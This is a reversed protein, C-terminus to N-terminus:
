LVERVLVQRGDRPLVRVQFVRDEESPHWGHLSRADERALRQTFVELNAFTGDQAVGSLQVGDKLELLLHFLELGLTLVEEGGGAYCYILHLHTHLTELGEAAAPRTPRLDFRDWPKVVWFASDIPTRPTIRLPVGQSLQGPAFALSPLDELRAIGLCLDRLLAAAASPPMLPLGRFRDLHRGNALAVDGGAAGLPQTFWARRRAQALRDTGSDPIPERLLRRDLIPDAELAPDFRTMEALLKLEGQRRDSRADFARQWYRPPRLDPDAHLEACDHVGFLSYSLAARLERATIHIEGRQHCAQLLDALRERLRPGQDPDRLAQVSHWATCRAQVTCTACPAWPDTDGGLLRDVLADLFDATLRGQAEDTGGVLSRRNLDILRFRPDLTLTEGLLVQRLPGTLWTDEPQTEIWELLKGNNVAVIHILDRRFDPTHFPAFLEGLLTNAGKGEWAAAGDLNVKLAQGNPLKLKWVRRASHIDRLGLRQALHQLFATKGDGANGFLIILNVQGAQIEALLTDDLRTEVYTAEAFPSDLGRTESNGHRSGPYSSLLNRLWPVHNQTLTPPSVTVPPGQEAHTQGPTAAPEALFRRAALADPFRQGVNPHTARDFFPRLADFGTIGEWNLGLDKRRETGYSFPDRDTLCHFLSAALAYLDDAPRIGARAQVEPSAYPFTGGRAADGTQAVTDYDTLVVSGGRVILNKLSVDGHVLGVRHLEGLAGCLDLLWRQALAEVSPEGLDDAYLSLVGTLDQMPQGEVWKMLAVFRDREWTPAIEHITSLNPHTTYARVRKYARIAAEGDVPDRVLKAVYTGFKEDSHADLEVVKFTQGIGGSGLRGVIKYRSQQFDVVTDEDWYDAPPLKTPIPSATAPEPTLGALAQSLDELSPRDAPNTALGLDLIGRVQDALPEGPEFLTLLSACLAAIDSRADAAALGGQRVEEAVYPLLDGFDIQTPSITEADQLRTLNFDTFLPAGNHRVRLSSPSLRRHVIALDPDQPQHFQRLAECAARAYGLRALPDWSSDNRRESLSPAAPDVLSYFYLEGPYGEAEQFSDLLSPVFPSKQWRQITEFERRALELAQKEQTASLDYLHLIVRDRRTPHQGRYIRHFADTKSSQRELNVLGAFTRLEGNLAVKVSPELLRAALEVQEPGLQERGGVALLNSWEPLGFAGVGRPSPRTTADFRVEGRTLLLRAAVFGPDLRPRLKGAVRKAKADIRDAEREAVQTNQRLYAADWHKVEIVFVGPPGIVVIDIEDSRASPHQTHNLNSLLIWTGASERLKIQLREVANRESENVFTGCPIHRVM